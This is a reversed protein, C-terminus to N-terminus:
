GAARKERWGPGRMGDLQDRVYGVTLGVREAIERDPIGFGALHEIEAARERAVARKGHVPESDPTDLDDETWASPPLWGAAQARRLSRASGGATGSLRLYAQHVADATGVYVTDSASSSLLRRVTSRGLGTAAAVAEAGHGAAMLARLRRVTGLSPVHPRPDPVPRLDDIRAATAPNVAAQGALIGRVTSADLRCAAGIRGNSWGADRYRQLVTRYPAADTLLKRQGYRTRLQWEKCYRTHAATCQPRSCGNMYCYRSGPHRDSTATL